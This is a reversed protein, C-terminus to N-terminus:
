ALSYGITRHEIQCQKRPLRVIETYLEFITTLSRQCETTSGPKSRITEILSNFDDSQYSTVILDVVKQLEIHAKEYQDQDLLLKYAELVQIMYDKSGENTENNNIFKCFNDCIQNNIVVKVSKVESTNGNKRSRLINLFDFVTEDAIIDSYAVPKTLYLGSLNTVRSLAVYLQGPAFIHSNLDLVAKKYTQGQAKHITCAYALKIPFQITRQIFPKVKILKHNSSDYTMDYRYDTLLNIRYQDMPDPCRVTNGNDLKITFYMGNFGVIEGFDGNIFGFYKSSKCITVRAGIKFSLQSDCSSPVVIPHIPTSTPLDSHKLVVHEGSGDNKLITYTADITQVDGPLSDMKKANVTRVQENSAAVYIADDPIQDTVRSNLEDLLRVKEESSLPRRFNDLLEVFSLDNAQRYSKTLEFFKINDINKQIVHSNYFYIGSYEHKLYELVAEESVIPPLQFLDGVVVVPIGGFPLTNGKCRQCICNMMEFLDSRVMSIEDFILMKVKSLAASTKYLKSNDLNAPNQYGEELDDFSGHFFSHFTRGNGPYLSAALNTPALVQCGQVQRIVQQILYTKGCGAKGHIFTIGSPSGTLYRIVDEQTSGVPEVYALQKVPVEPSAIKTKAVEQIQPVSQAKPQEMPTQISPKAPVSDVKESTVPKPTESITQNSSQSGFKSSLWNFLSIM